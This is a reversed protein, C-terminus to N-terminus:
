EEAPSECLIETEAQRLGNATARIKVQGAAGEVSGVILMCLGHFAKRYDAVFPELSTPDGNGVAVIRGPGELDFHVMSDALPCLVGDEDMIRVTIFSLDRGDAMIRTRDPILKIKAPAGATKMETKAIPKGKSDFAVIKLVGPEYKVDNWRLRYRDYVSNKDKKRKGQSKGNLFLEASNYNTYCHVPTIEGERGKWNWHPFIHLTEVDPNWKSRYSYYRDKPIGCLDIIGFYSSRSPWKLNFPTPEGLYDFGTWVFEGCIFPYKDQAAFEIDPAYGWGTSSMDYSSVQRSEQEMQNSREEEVPFYYEGRTSICSETESGVTHWEPHAKHFEEYRGPQYNWGPVDVADALGHKIAVDPGNFGATTLRTPDEDHCIDVLMQAVKNGGEQWQEGIENGISWLIVCPHNRDRKIFARMDKEAWKDFLRNYGKKCKARQWEDFAEDMVLIGKRDCIDLLEPAPPNHSTRFANCGMDALLDWQRELARMNVATGLPGLDHHMCVGNLKLSRNNIFFGKDKEFRITRIGFTTKYQDVTKGNVIINSIATYLDPSDPSWLKPKEVDLTQEITSSGKISKITSVSAIKSGFPNLIETKLEIDETKGNKGPIYDIKTKINVTAKTKTVKPTTIFTGWHAVHIPNVTVLRVNRYIGAGPYWRAADTEVEARVALVNEANFKMHDTLEFYFSAYGFPWSGIYKENLYIKSNAMVGDFEIFFRKGQSNKPVSFKKRYWGKGVHPLGGTRGSHETDAKEGDEVITTIQLDNNKDFPGKIAWDHPVQVAEWKSDDFKIKEAGKPDSNLFRWGKDFLEIKRISNSQPKKKGKKTLSKDPSSKKTKLNKM